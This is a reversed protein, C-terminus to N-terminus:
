HALLVRVRCLEDLLELPLEVNRDRLIRARFDALTEDSRLDSLIEFLPAPLKIPDLANFTELYVVNGAPRPEGNLCLVVREPLPAPVGVEAFAAEVKELNLAADGVITNFEDSSLGAVVGHAARYFAEERGSWEGWYSAYQADSPAMDELDELSLQHFLRSPQVLSPALTKVAHIALKAEVRTLYLALANWFTQASPGSTFKCFYTHCIGTRHRWVTCSQEESLYRCRLLSTRGFAAERAAEYLIATKHSPMLWRSTVGIRSAIHARVRRQGEALAPDPDVLLAGVLYNPLNPQYTCCKADPRFYIHGPVPDTPPLMACNSCTTRPEELRPSDFFAPLLGTYVPPLAQRFTEKM